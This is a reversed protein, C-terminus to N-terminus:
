MAAKLRVIDLSNQKVIDYLDKVAADTATQREILFATHEFVATLTTKMDSQETAIAVVATELTDFRSELTDFRSELTDFHSELTDFRSELSTIRADITDVKSELGDLRTVVIELLSLIKEENNM